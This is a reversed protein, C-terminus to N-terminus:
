VTGEERISEKSLIYNRRMIARNLADVFGSVSAKIIDTDVGRGSAKVNDLEIVLRAEAQADTNPTLAKISFDILRPEVKLAKQIAKIVADVPGNGTSTATREEGRFSLVVTATPLLNDGTQVQYHKVKIPEEEEVKMFEEYILAELDEDYVEKKKDALAKFKEFIRELDEDSLKFGLENLRRKLAHRGSHKGLIIRTSPFGVDEPNMIEYTLPHALVGHQHIGSEHAFANDGVIAKNPQVFSGTIRCLLRSTKYIERTNIDTYLGGFFDKRVKLAMVIEELAANGAREGIGNITCEVQRAGHKVAMLSNAVAMGLDDHCHVSIIARDINPVNNRIDEILRAFEEPVAYGVTDPINIVTAGAKIATEIVRYLFERQSRTADECSFEVDDTFRRAFEVAKKARELVEEPSMRLKYKMHIESTAIFTHIRKRRAPKLAEGALEIDKELARALSCIIPGEVQQAILHVSEFDGKSAAAFGAEIVDVGLKALQHAMQLKEDATMSFGPAQEGDRLTTDFIYVKEM